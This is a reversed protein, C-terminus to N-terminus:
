SGAVLASMSARSAVSIAVSASRAVLSAAASGIVAVSALSASWARVLPVAAPGSSM